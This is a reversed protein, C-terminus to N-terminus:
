KRTKVKRKKVKRSTSRGKEKKTKAKIKEMKENEVDLNYQSWGMFMLARQYAENQNNLAQRTNQTKNYIRNTPANTTAEIYNTTASWIPNDIDFTEMEDMVKRNYNLTREANVIKRAKIGLPPSINLAEVLVSAEDGNWDKGREKHFAIAMNKITAIAAGWVGTGRLVSDISGNIVREKKKLWKEDDEDDEFLALFLASQLSYFVLNQIVFYYAIRSMNSIDSQFQTTNGPTIRRNKIDLFAKKGLRNFQSTVNQFALIVKGLVSAQQQSVMDPRASQQTAEALVQFDIWAKSEAEKQSLGQKKYTNIRNRYFTAGGTAIAVNDGIQTPKFGFELLKGLLAMPTNKAGRLSAALEAGNVDTKIGGRRQKMFDSNFIFAWDAWYQKQNAFAKAAAFINNDAFNIFNVMSMQQLVASRINFFMTAAVSGNLYNLFMNALKNQGRPRNRGTKTRYLIDKIASVVGEGYTAEIKNLNEESFIIDANENFEEFFQARGVRGTADDLDTRIDGATWGEVPNVYTDQKSIINLTEAYVQLEQDAAVLDVLMQQDTESLGPIKHGHKDWLYVRIADQYTFDGDPTKKTLKKKVNKFEKNLSKYDNAIAQKAANLERYARNLPRILAKEFFDRHQNGKKGKGLFNYIIGVFDEHSPPIFFRFKGKSEGRKRAKVASFRKKSDIGTIEELINNFETNMSKSFKVGTAPIGKAEPDIKLVKNLDIRVKGDVTKIVNKLDSNKEAVKWGIETLKDNLKIKGYMYAIDGKTHQHNLVDGKKMVVDNTSMDGFPQGWNNVASMKGDPFFNYSATAKGDKSFEKIEVIAGDANYRTSKVTKGKVRNEVIKTGEAYGDQSEEFIETTVTNGDKSVTRTERIAEEIKGNVNVLEVKKTVRGEKVNIVPGDTANDMRSWYQGNAYFSLLKGDQFIIRKPGKSYHIWDQWADEMYLKPHKSKAILCWPNSNPGFHTDVVKRVAMMGEKTNDVSYVTIGKEKHEGSFTFEEVNNPNIPKKKVKGAYTEIIENPNNYSFLDLKFREALNIADTIKFKDELLKINSTALWKTTIREYKRKKNNPIDLGDIFVFMNDVTKSVLKDKVLDPRYKAITKEYEARHSKSFKINDYTGPNALGGVDKVDNKSAEEISKVVQPDGHVFDAKAQQVKSKVDFQDLMNKVAQVNQLADDAFYFDNYGEGVKEAVWLAKAEATSNGLTSINKMPINLGNAKLFDRIAKQAAPPRATLIFMSEPGFKKQLKLAKNFLPALKAKVVKDFEAFDFKYGQALLDQYQSAYQEANLTGKTGDPATFKVLSKTTALTDDFDLVTIGKSENNTSRSFSIANDLTKISQITEESKIKDFFKSNDIRVALEGVEQTVDEQIISKQLISNFIGRNKNNTFIKNSNVPNFVTKKSKSFSINSNIKKAVGDLYDVAANRNIKNYILKDYMLGSPIHLTREANGLAIMFMAESDMGVIFGDAGATKGQEKPPTYNPYKKEFEESTVGDKSDLVLQADADLLTASYKSSILPYVKNFKNDIISKLINMNFNLVQLNHEFQYRKIGEGRVKKRTTSYDLTVSNLVAGQRSIGSTASTQIQVLKMVFAIAEYYEISGEEFQNVYENLKNYFYDRVSHIADIDEQTILKRIKSALEKQNAETQPKGAYEEVLDAVKDLKAPSVATANLNGKFDKKGKTNYKSPIEDKNISKPVTKGESNVRTGSSRTYLSNGALFTNTILSLKLIRPDMLSTLGKLGTMFKTEGFKTMLDLEKVNGEPFAKSLFKKVNDYFTFNIRKGRTIVAEGAAERFEKVTIKPGLRSFIKEIEDLISKDVTEAYEEAHLAKVKEFTPNEINKIANAFKKVSKSFKIQDNYNGRLEKKQKNLENAFDRLKAQIVADIDNSNEIIENNIVDETIGKAIQNALGKQRALLTTYGGETFFKTFKAKNTEIKYISKRYYSDKKLGPKDAKRTIRDEKGIETLEFLTKYNNKITNVDLSQVINAYNLAMFAKYKESIVVEGKINSIKGMQTKVAKTIEKNIIKTIQEELNKPNQEILTDIEARVTASIVERNDLKIDALSKLVRAKPEIKPAKKTKTPKDEIQMAEETDIRITRKTEQGKKYLETAADLKAFGIDAMIREGITIEEKSGTKRKAQPDYNMLRNRASIITEKTKAPSMGLSKIYNNIAGDDLNISEFLDNFEPSRQFQEKTYEKGQEELRNKLGQEIKNVAEVAESRDEVKAAKSRSKSFKSTEETEGEKSVRKGGTFEDEAAGAFELMRESLKGEKVNQSYEKMFNFADEGTEISLNKYPTSENFFGAVKNKIGDFFGKSNKYTINNKKNEIIDSLATFWEDTTSMQEESMGYSKRLRNEIADVVNKGLNKEVNLKFDSILNKVRSGGDEADLAKLNALAGKMVGHLVEHSGADLAKYKFAAEENIMIAQNGDATPINVADSQNASDAIRNAEAAIQEETMTSLDVFKGDFNYKGLSMVREVLASVFKSNEKFSEFPNFGMQESAIKAFAKTKELWVSRVDQAVKKRAKVDTTRRDVSKYKDIVGAIEAEINELTVDADAVAFIGKKETDAEAKARKKELKVLKERDVEAVREDIQTKFIAEQQKQNVFDNLNRDGKIDFQVKALNEPKMSNVKNMVEKRTRIEGNIKYEKKALIDAVNVVGKAEAVGEMLVEAIDFEQGAVVQGLAEGGAGGGMEIGTVRRAIKGKGAGAEYLKSGVGRSLGVTIGEIAGITAGRALARDKIDEFLEEDELIARINEENFDKDGLETKLLETLTLATEMSGVLGAVAGGIAGTATGIIPVFSGAAAATASTAGTILAAEESDFFTRAMAAASSVIVQPIVQGRTQVMGKMFGWVGGGAENKIEEYKRMEDSAGTKDLANSIEIYRRLEAGSINKGKKYVDFAEDVTAGQAMGQEGARWLDGLWDTAFNKGLTREIWTDDEKSGEIDVQPLEIPGIGMMDDKEELIDLGSIAKVYADLSLGNSAAERAIEEQTFTQNNYTYNPM